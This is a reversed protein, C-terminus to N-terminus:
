LLVVGFENTLYMSRRFVLKKAICGREHERDTPGLWKAQDHRLRQGTTGRDNRQALPTHGLYNFIAYRAKHAVGLIFHDLFEAM